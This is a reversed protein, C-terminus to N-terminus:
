WNIRFKQKWFCISRIQYNCKYKNTSTNNLTVLTTEDELGGHYRISGACSCLSRGIGPHWKADHYLAKSFVDCLLENKCFWNVKHAMLCAELRKKILFTIQIESVKGAIVIMIM